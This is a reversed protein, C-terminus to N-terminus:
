KLALIWVHPDHHLADGPCRHRDVSVYDARYSASQAEEDADLLSVVVGVNRCGHVLEEIKTDEGVSGAPHVQRQEIDSALYEHDTLESKEAIDLPPPPGSEATGFVGGRSGCQDFGHDVRELGLTHLSCASPETRLHVDLDVVVPRNREHDLDALPRNGSM